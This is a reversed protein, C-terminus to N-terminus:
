EYLTNRLTYVNGLFYYHTAKKCKAQLIYGKVTWCYDALMRLSWKGQYRKEMTSIDQRFRGGYEDSVAGFIEPFFDLHSDLFHVKKSMNREVFKYSQVLDAVLDPYNEAKHYGLFVPLSM